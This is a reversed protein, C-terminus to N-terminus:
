AHDYEESEGALIAKVELERGVVQATICRFLDHHTQATIKKSM